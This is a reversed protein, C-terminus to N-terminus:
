RSSNRYTEREIERGRQGGGEREKQRMCERKRRGERERTKAGRKKEQQRGREKTMEQQNPTVESGTIWVKALLPCQTTFTAGSNLTVIIPLHTKILFFPLKSIFLTVRSWLFILGVFSKNKYYSISCYMDIMIAKMIVRPSIIYYNRKSSEWRKKDLKM